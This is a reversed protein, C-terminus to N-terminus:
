NKNSQYFESPTQNTIKKFARNFATKSNFGVEFAIGLLTYNNYKPSNVRRKFEDVRYFNVFDFFNKDFGDNIIKSLLHTPVKLKSALENLTLNPNIYPKENEFFDILLKKQNELNEDSVTVKIPEANIINKDEFVAINEITPIEKVEEKKLKFIEPQHIAFYGLIYGIMSFVLWILDISKSTIEPIQFNGFYHIAFLVGTFGGLVICVSQIILVTSLYQINQHYATQNIYSEKYLNITKKSLSWYYINFVFALSSTIGYTIMLDLEENVVKLQFKKSELLFYPLFALIQVFFPVFHRISDKFNIAKQFLLKQIYLYFLPPYTFLIFNPILLLKPIANAVDRYNSIVRVFMMLSVFGILLVLWRNAEKNFDQISPIVISLLIGQFAAFLLLLDFISYYNFTSALDEWNDIEIKLPHNADLSELQTKRNPRAKGSKWSEVTTWDGRNFKYELEKIETFIKIEFSGDYQKELKYNEDHELWNNFNGAIYISADEPTNEPLKSIKFWYKIRNEWGEIKVEITKENASQKTFVRNSLLAGNATAEVTNWSGQTFKYEFSSLTDPLDIFYTDGAIKKLLFKEDKPNWQNLNSAMYLPKNPMLLKPAHVVIRIQAYMPQVILLLLIVLIRM